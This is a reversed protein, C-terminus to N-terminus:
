RNKFIPKCAELVTIDEKLSWLALLYHPGQHTDSAKFKEQLRKKELTKRWEMLM